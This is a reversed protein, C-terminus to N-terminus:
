LAIGLKGQQDGGVKFQSDAITQVPGGAKRVRHRDARRTLRFVGFIEAADSGFLSTGDAHMPIKKGDGIDVGIGIVGDDICPRESFVRLLDTIKNGGVNSACVGDSHEHGGFM